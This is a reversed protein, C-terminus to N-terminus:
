TAAPTRAPPEAPAPLGVKRRFAAFRPDDKFRLILPDFLLSNVGPDRISWARELWDFTAQADNRLAYVQAIQFAGSRADHEILTKLAADAAARDASRSRSRWLSADGPRTLKRAHLPSPRRLTAV